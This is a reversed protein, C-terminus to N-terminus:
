RVYAKIQRGFISLLDRPMTPLVTAIKSGDLNAGSTIEPLIDKGFVDEYMHAPLAALKRLSVHVGGLDVGEEALKDTNFVTTMADPLRAGYYRDVGSAKDLEYLTSALKILSDRDQSVGEVAQLSNAIKTYAGQFKEPAVNARVEVWDVVTDIDSVNLGALRTTHPAVPIKYENAKKVLRTAARIRDEFELDRGQTHLAVEAHKVTEADGVYWRNLEPLLYNEPAAVVPAAAEKEMAFNLIVGYASLADQLTSLVQVPAAAEKSTAYLYSLAAHEATHVPYLRREEWAFASDPLSAHEELDISANKIFGEIEPVELIRQALLRFSPDHFQDVEPMKDM